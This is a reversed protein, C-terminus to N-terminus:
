YEGLVSKGKMKAKIEDDVTKEVDKYSRLTTGAKEIMRNIENLNADKTGSSVEVEEIHAIVKDLGKGLSDYYRKTRTNFVSALRDLAPQILEDDSEFDGISQTIDYIIADDQENFPLNIYPSEPHTKLHVYALYPEAGGGSPTGDGHKNILDNLEKIMFAEPTIVIRGETYELIKPTM